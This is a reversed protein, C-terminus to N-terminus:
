LIAFLTMIKRLLSSHNDKFKAGFEEDISAIVFNDWVFTLQPFLNRKKYHDIHSNDNNLPLETYGCLSNQERSLMFCKMKFRVDSPVDDWTKPKNKQRMLSSFDPTPGIKNIKQM